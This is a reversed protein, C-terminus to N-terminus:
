RRVSKPVSTTGNMWGLMDFMVLVLVLMSLPLVVLRDGGEGGRHELLVVDLVYYIM